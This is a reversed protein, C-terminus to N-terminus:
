FKQEQNQNLYLSFFNSIIPFFWFPQGATILCICLISIISANEENEQGVVMWCTVIKYKEKEIVSKKDEDEDLYLFKLKILFIIKFHSILFLRTLQLSGIKHIFRVGFHLCQISWLTDLCSGLSPFHIIYTFHPSYGGRELSAHPSTACVFYVSNLFVRVLIGCEVTLGILREIQCFLNFNLVFILFLLLFPSPTPTTPGARSIWGHLGWTRPQWCHRSCHCSFFGGMETREMFSRWTAGDSRQSAGRGRRNHGTRSRQPTGMLAEVGGVGVLPWPWPGGGGGSGLGEGARRRHIRESVLCDFLFNEWLM